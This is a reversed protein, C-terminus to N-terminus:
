GAGGLVVSFYLWISMRLGMMERPYTERKVELLLLEAWMATMSQVGKIQLFQNTKPGEKPLNSHHPQLLGEQEHLSASLSLSFSSLCVCFHSSLSTNPGLFVCPAHVRWRKQHSREGEERQIWGGWALIHCARKRELHAQWKRKVRFCIMWWKLWKVCISWSPKLSSEEEGAGTKAVM